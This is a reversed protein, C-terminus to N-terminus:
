VSSCMCSLGPKGKCADIANCQEAIYDMDTKIEGQCDNQISKQFEVKRLLLSARIFEPDLTGWSVAIDSLDIQASIDGNDLKAWVATPIVWRRTKSELWISFNRIIKKM